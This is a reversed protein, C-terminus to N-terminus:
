RPQWEFTKKFCIKVVSTAIKTTSWFFSHQPVTEVTLSRLLVSFSICTLEKSPIEQLKFVVYLCIFMRSNVWFHSEKLKPPFEEFFYKCHNAKAKNKLHNGKSDPLLITTIFEKYTNNSNTSKETDSLFAKHCLRYTVSDTGSMETFCIDTQPISCKFYIDTQGLHVSSDTESIM